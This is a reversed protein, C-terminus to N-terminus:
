QKKKRRAKMLQERTLLFVGDGGREFELWTFPLEPWAREVAPQSNGVEVILMGGPRLHKPAQELIVRVSDLGQRGSALALRPEHRYEAPLAAMEKAGVYPPNSVIMDYTCGALGAFHDSKLCRVRGSLRYARVNARALELAPESVDTADVRARPLYHACAIAICGSGTGLDLIRALKAPDAWPRFQSEILEAIPSRPILARPDTMMPLGAFWTRGTLYVVPIRERIRRSLLADFALEARAQVSRAYIAAPAGQPLDMVHWLLAAADDVANDTGHGFHV